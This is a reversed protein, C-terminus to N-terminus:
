KADLKSVCADLTVSLVLERMVLLLIDELGGIRKVRALIRCYVTLSSPMTRGDGRFDQSHSM